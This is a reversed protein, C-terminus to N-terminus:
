RDAGEDLAGRPERHQDVQWALVAVADDRSRLVSRSQGAVAGDGHLVRECRRHGRQGFLESSGQGPVSALFEGGVGREGDLGVDGDVEGVRLAGPCRPVLSFVLPRSRWYKGLPVSRDRHDASSISATAAVM